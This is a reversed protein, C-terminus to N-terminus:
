MYSVYEYIDLIDEAKLRLFILKAPDTKNYDFLTVQRSYASAAYSTYVIPVGAILSLNDEIHAFDSAEFIRKIASFKEEDLKWVKKGLVSVNRRGEFTVYGDGRVTVSYDPGYSRAAHHDIVIMDFSKHVSQSAADSAAAFQVQEAQSAGNSATAKETNGNVNIGSPAPIVEKECSALFFLASAFLSVTLSNKISFNSSNKM